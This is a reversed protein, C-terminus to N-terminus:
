GMPRLIGPPKVHLMPPFMMMILPGQMPSLLGRCSRTVKTRGETTRMGAKNRLRHVPLAIPKMPNIFPPFLWQLHPASITIMMMMMMMKYPKCLMPFLLFRCRYQSSGGCQFRSMINM